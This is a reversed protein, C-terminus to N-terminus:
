LLKMWIASVSFAICAAAVLSYHIRSTRNWWKQKWALVTLIVVPLTFGLLMWPLLFLWAAQGPVGFALIYPNVTGVKIFIVVLGSLFGLALVSAIGALWRAKSALPTSASPRKRLRRILYGAPPFTVATLLIFAILGLGAIFHIDPVPQFRSALRYIGSNIYVNTVFKTPTKKDTLCSTNLPKEPDALFLSELKRTCESYPSVAHGGGQVEIFTSKTLTSAALKGYSPPTIPDFEGGLILTPIDSRV